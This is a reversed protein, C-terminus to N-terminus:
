LLMGGGSLTLVFKGRQLRTVGDSGNSGYSARVVHGLGLVRLDHANRLDIPVLGACVHAIAIDSNIFLRM